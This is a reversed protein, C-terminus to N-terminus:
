NKCAVICHSELHLKHQNVDLEPDKRIRHNVVSFGHETLISKWEEAGFLNFGHEVFPFVQMSERSRIGTYFKGGPKLVRHVEKLHTKPHDWFYIVMNCFVKDFVTDPYPIDDSAGPSITLDGSEIAESNNVTAMKVMEESFDIGCVRLDEAEKFMRSMFSGTGFGIELVQEREQLQMTELTLDFLAENVQNMKRGVEVAHEGSPKRLQKAMFKPDPQNSSREPM